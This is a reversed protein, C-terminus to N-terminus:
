PSQIQMVSDFGSTRGPTLDKCCEASVGGVGRGAGSIFWLIQDVKRCRVTSQPYRDLQWKEFANGNM